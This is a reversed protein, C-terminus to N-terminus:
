QDRRDPTLTQVSSEVADFAHSLGVLNQFPMLLRLAHVTQDTPEYLGTIISAAKTVSDFSPGLLAGVLGEGAYKGVPRQSLTAYSVAKGEANRGMPIESLIRQADAFVGLLGSRNIAEDAWKAPSANMMSEYAKGGTSVGWLYYSLSGLALSVMVGNFIAMDRQQLGAAVTKTTSAMGFSKFQALMKNFTNADTWNPREMGPTIITDNANQLLAARFTRVAEPNEWVETNPIWHGDIESAGGKVLTMQNWITEAMKSNIGHAALFANAQEIEKATAGATKGVATQLADSFHTLAASTNLEKMLKTWQDFLGVFGTKTAAFEITREFKSKPAVDYIMDTLQYARGHTIPDLAIAALEAERKSLKWLKTQTIFPVFADSMTRLLGHKMILRSPDAISSILVKGMLRATQANLMTRGAREAFATPDHPIGRIHRSRELLVDIDKRLATYKASLKAQEEEYKAADNTYKIKLEANAAQQESWLEDMISKLNPDGFRRTLEIDAGLTRIYKRAVRDANLEIFDMMAVGKSSVHSNPIQLVRALEPGRGEMHLMQYGQIRSNISLIKRTAEYAAERAAKSFTVAGDKFEAGRAVMSDLFMDKRQKLKEGQEARKAASAAPSMDTIKKELALKGEHRRAILDLGTQQVEAILAEVQARQAQVDLSEFDDLKKSLKKIREISVTSQKALEVMKEEPTSARASWEEVERELEQLTDLEKKLAKVAAKARKDVVTNELKGLDRKLKEVQKIVREATALQRENFDKFKASIAQMKETRIVDTKNLQTRTKQLKQKAQFYKKVEDSGKAFNSAAAKLTKAKAVDQEARAQRMMAEYVGVDPPAQNQLKTLEEDVATLRASVEERSMTAFKAEEELKKARDTLKMLGKDYREKLVGHFHEEVMDVFDEMRANIADDSYVRMFYNDGGLEEADLMKLLGMKEAERGYDAFMSSYAEATARAQKTVEATPDFIARGVEKMFADRTLPGSTLGRIEARTNAFWRPSAGGFILDNYQDDAVRILDALHKQRLAIVHEISGGTNGSIGAKNGEQVLGGLGFNSTITRGLPSFDQEVGRTVPGIHKLVSMGPTSAFRGADILQPTHVAGTSSALATKFGKQIDSEIARAMSNVTKSGAIAAASGLAGALITGMGVAIASETPTRTLQQEGLVAEQAIQAGANYAIASGILRAGTAESSAFPVFLTPSMIGALMATVMGATGASALSQRDAMERKFQNVMFDTQAKSASEVFYEKQDWLGREKLDAGLDYTYDTPFSPRQMLQMAAYVDNELRFASDAYFPTPEPDPSPTPFYIGGKDDVLPM